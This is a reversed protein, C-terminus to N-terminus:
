NSIYTNATGNTNAVPDGPTTPDPTVGALTLSFQPTATM